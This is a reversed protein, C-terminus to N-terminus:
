NVTIKLLLSAFENDAIPPIEISKTSRFIWIKAKHFTDKRLAM